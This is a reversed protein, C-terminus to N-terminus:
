KRSLSSTNRGQKDLWVIVVCVNDGTGRRLAENAVFRSMHRRRTARTISSSEDLSIPSELKNHVFNVADQSSMVDWLGDSALIIFEDGDEAIPFRKIEVQSSVTPKAFRDGIARSLSLSRVRWVGCYSDWEINEGLSHIRKKEKPDNPKHDRTLDIPRKRRSLVARSDGLNASILTRGGDDGEHMTVVVATSGQHHLQDKELVERDVERFASTLAAVISAISFSKKSSAASPDGALALWAALSEKRRREEDTDDMEGDCLYYRMRYYLNDRLYKSVGSGGHGDFVATFRGGEAIFYEDEM